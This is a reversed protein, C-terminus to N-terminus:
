RWTLPVTDFAFAVVTGFEDLDIVGSGRQWLGYLGLELAVRRGLERHARLELTSRRSDGADEQRFAVAGRGSLSWRAAPAWSASASGRLEPAVEGTTRNIAAELATRLEESLHQSPLEHALGLEGAAHIGREVDVRDEFYTGVAGAGAWWQLTRTASHRWTAVARVFASTRDEVLHAGRASISLGLVDRRSVNRGLSAVAQVGRQTPLAEATGQAEGSEYFWGSTLTVATRPDPHGELTLGAQAHRYRLTAVTVISESDESSRRSESILDTQGHVGSAFAALHWVPVGVLEARLQADHVVNVRTRSLVDPASMRPQYTATFTLDPGLLRLRLHPAAVLEASTANERVPPDATRTWGEARLGVEVDGSGLALALAISVAATV